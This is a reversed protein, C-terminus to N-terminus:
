TSKGEKVKGTLLHQDPTASELGTTRATVKKSARAPPIKVCNELHLEAVRKYNVGFYIKPLGFEVGTM